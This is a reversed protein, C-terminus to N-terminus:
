RRPVLLKSGAHPKEPEAFGKVGVGNVFGAFVRDLDSEGPHACYWGEIKMDGIPDGSGRVDLNEATTSRGQRVYICKAGDARAFRQYELDEFKNRAVGSELLKSCRASLSEEVRKSIPEDIVFTREQRILDDMRLFYLDARPYSNAQAQWRGHEFHVWGKRARRLTPAVDELGPAQLM